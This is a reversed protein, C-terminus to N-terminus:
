FNNSHRMQNLKKVLFFLIIAPVISTIVFIGFFGYVEKMSSILGALQGGLYFAVGISGYWCGVLLATYRHPSLHTVLSLGIPALLVEGLAMFLYSGVLYLPNVEGHLAGSPINRSGIMMLSFCLGMAVLNLTTKM